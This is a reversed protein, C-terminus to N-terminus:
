DEHGAGLPNDVLLPEESGRTYFIESGDPLTNWTVVADFNLHRTIYNAKGLFIPNHTSLDSDVYIKRDDGLAIDATSHCLDKLFPEDTINENIVIICGEPGLDLTSVVVHNIFPQLLNYDGLYILNPNCRM